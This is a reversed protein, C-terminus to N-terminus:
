MYHLVIERNGKREQKTRILYIADSRTNNRLTIMDRSSPMMDYVNRLLVLRILTKGYGLKLVM